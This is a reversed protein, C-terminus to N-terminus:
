RRSARTRQQEDGHGVASVQTFTRPMRCLAHSTLASVMPLSSGSVSKTM